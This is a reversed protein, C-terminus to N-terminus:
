GAVPTVLAAYLYAGAIAGCIPAIVPLWAYGWDSDRKGRIPMLAHAIRPGLDRAPNIAYGTPGGLSLGIALIFFGVILPNLGDAFTNAGICSLGFMLVATGLFESLFNAPTNKIAPQTCFVALKLDADETEAWHPLYMLYTLIGGLIGGLMQGAIYVPVDAWPLQGTMAFAITLAPNLHAGSYKGAVYVGFTVALGWGFAIVIWGGNFGKSKALLVNAVVGCGFLTLVATGVLESLFFDM